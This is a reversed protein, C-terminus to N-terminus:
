IAKSLAPDYRSRLFWREILVHSLWGALISGALLPLFGLATQPRLVFLLPIHWLYVGYSIRGLFVAPTWRLVGPPAAIIFVTAIEAATIALSFHLGTNGGILLAVFVALAIAGRSNHIPRLALAAGLLLGTAHLPTLFYAVEDAGSWELATRSVTLVAWAGLLISVALGRRLRLRLLGFVALPWLIYFQEEIALSWTHSLPTEAAWFAQRINQVYILTSVGDAWRRPGWDPAFIPALTLCAALMVFLAPLLRRARRVLFAGYNIRGTAEAEGALISTILWGSLVFFADVGLSGGSFLPRASHFGVVALVALARLGDLRPEYRLGM